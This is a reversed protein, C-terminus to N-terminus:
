VGFLWKRSWSSSLESFRIGLRKSKQTLSTGAIIIAGRALKERWNITLDNEVKLNISVNDESSALAKSVFGIVNCESPAIGAGIMKHLLSWPRPNITSKM